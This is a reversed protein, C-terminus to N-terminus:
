QLSMNREKQSFLINKIKAIYSTLPDYLLSKEEKIEDDTLEKLEDMM